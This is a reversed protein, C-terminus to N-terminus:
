RSAAEAESEAADRLLLDIRSCRAAPNRWHRSNRRRREAWRRLVTWVVAVISTGAM